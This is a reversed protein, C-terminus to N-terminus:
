IGDVYVSGGEPYSKISVVQSEAKGTPEWGTWNRWDGWYTRTTSCGFLPSIILLLLLTVKRVTM